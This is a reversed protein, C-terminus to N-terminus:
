VLSKLLRSRPLLVPQHLLSGCQRPSLCTHLVMLDAQPGKSGVPPHIHRFMGGNARMRPCPGWLRFLPRFRGGRFRMRPHLGWQRLLLFPLLRSLQLAHPFMAGVLLYFLFQLLESERLEAQWRLFVLLLSLNGQLM